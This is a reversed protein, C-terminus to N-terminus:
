EETVKEELEDLRAEIDALAEESAKVVGRNLAIGARVAESRAAQLHHQTEKPLLRIPSSTVALGLQWLSRALEKSAARVQERRDEVEESASKTKTM